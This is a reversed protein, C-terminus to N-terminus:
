FAGSIWSTKPAKTNQERSIRPAHPPQGARRRSALTAPAAELALMALPELGAPLPRLLFTPMREMVNGGPWPGGGGPGIACGGPM